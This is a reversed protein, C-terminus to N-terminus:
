KSMLKHNLTNKITHITPAQESLEVVLDGRSMVGEPDFFKGESVRLDLSFHM